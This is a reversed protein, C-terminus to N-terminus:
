DNESDEVKEDEMLRLLKEAHRLFDLNQILEVSLAHKAECVRLERLMADAVPAQLREVHRLAEGETKHIAGDATQFATVRKM